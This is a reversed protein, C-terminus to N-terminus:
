STLESNALQRMVLLASQPGTNHTDLIVQAEEGSCAILIKVEADRKVMDVTTVIGTVRKEPLTGVWVDIEGGDGAQTDKLYGYDLPYIFTPYRPHATGRPRDIVVECTSILEDLRQWYLSNDM